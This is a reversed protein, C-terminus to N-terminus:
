TRSPVTSRDLRDMTVRYVFYLAFPVMLAPLVVVFGAQRVLVFVATAALSGLLIESGSWCVSERLVTWPSLDRECAVAISVLLANVLYHAVAVIIMLPVLTGASLGGGWVGGKPVFQAFLLAALHISIAMGMTNFLRKYWLGRARSSAAFGEVAATLTAPATGCLLLSLLILVDSFAVRCGIPRLRVSLPGIALTLLAMVAWILITGGLDDRLLAAISTGIVWTGGVTVLALYIFTKRNM